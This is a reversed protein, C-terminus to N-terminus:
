YGGGGSSGGGAAALLAVAGVVIGAIAGPHDALRGKTKATTERDGAEQRETPRTQSGAGSQPASGAQLAVRRLSPSRETRFGSDIAESDGPLTAAFRATQRELHDASAGRIGEAAAAACASIALVGFLVRMKLRM